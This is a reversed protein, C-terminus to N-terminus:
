QCIRHDGSKGRRELDFHFHTAHASNAGPGLVTMFYQCASARLAALVPQASSAMTVADKVEIVQGNALRLREVDVANGFAHESLKGSSDGNRGRCQYGPGTYFGAIKTHLGSQMVPQGQDKLWSVLRMAFGCNLTPGDPFTIQDAGAGVSELKVADNVSCNGAGVPTAVISFAAGQKRLAQFCDEGMLTRDPMAHPTPIQPPAIVVAPAVPKLLVAVPTPPESPPKFVPVKPLTVSGPAVRLKATAVTTQLQAPKLMPVPTEASPAGAEPVPKIKPKPVEPAVIVEKPPLSAVKSAAHHVARQHHVRRNKSGHHCGNLALSRCLKRDIQEFVKRVDTVTSALTVGVTLFTLIVALCVSLLWMQHRFGYQKM